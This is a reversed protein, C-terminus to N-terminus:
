TKLSYKAQILFLLYGRCCFLYLRRTNNQSSGLLYEVRLLSAGARRASIMLIRRSNINKHSICSNHHFFNRGAHHSPAPVRRWGSFVRSFFSRPYQGCISYLLSQKHGKGLGMEREHLDDVHIDTEEADLITKTQLLACDIGNIIKQTRM